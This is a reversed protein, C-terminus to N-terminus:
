NPKNKIKFKVEAQKRSFKWNIGIKERNREHVWAQVEERLTEENPFRRGNLCQSELAGIELEAQNM